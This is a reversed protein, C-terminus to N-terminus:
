GKMPPFRGEILLHSAPSEQRGAFVIAVRGRLCANKEMYRARVAAAVQQM